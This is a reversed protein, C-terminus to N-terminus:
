PSPGAERDIVFAGYGVVRDSPGGADGSHRLALTRVRLGRGRCAILLGAIARHGCASGRDLRDPELAEIADATQRDLRRCESDPHHHSLDSSVVILTEDGGWLRDLVEAVEKPDCRGVLLPVIAFRDLAEQLFPLEVELAHDDRHSRDDVVVQPLDSVLAIAERDVPVIGLPTEFGDAGTTTLGIVPSHATGLLVVRRVIGRARALRAFALGAVAGSYVFGAHPVILAKPPPRGDNDPPGILESVVRRLRDPEAPYFRGAVAAPRLIM